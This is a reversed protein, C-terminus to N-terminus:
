KQIGFGGAEGARSLTAKANRELLVDCYSWQWFDGAECGDVGPITEERNLFAQVHDIPEEM